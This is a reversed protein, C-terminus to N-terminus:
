LIWIFFADPKPRSLNRIVDAVLDISDCIPCSLNSSYKRTEEFTPHPQMRIRLLIRYLAYKSEREEELPKSNVEMEALDEM